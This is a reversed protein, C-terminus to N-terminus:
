LFVHDWPGVVEFMPKRDQLFEERIELATISVTVEMFQVLLAYSGYFHAYECWAHSKVRKIVREVRSRYHSLLDNWAADVATFPPEHAHQPRKCPCLMRGCGGYAKDGLGFEGPYTLFKHEHEHWMRVNHCPLLLEHRLVGLLVCAGHGLSVLGRAYAPCCRRGPNLHKAVRACLCAM